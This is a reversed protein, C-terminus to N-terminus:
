GPSHYSKRWVFVLSTAQNSVKVYPLPVQCDTQVLNRAVPNCLENWGVMQSPLVQLSNLARPSCPPELFKLMHVQSCMIRPQSLIPPRWVFFAGRDPSLVFTVISERWLFTITLQLNKDWFRTKHACADILTTNNQLSAELRWSRFCYDLFNCFQCQNFFFCMKGYTKIAFSRHQDAQVFGLLCLLSPAQLAIADPAGM